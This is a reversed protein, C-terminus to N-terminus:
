SPSRAACAPYRPLSSFPSQRISPVPEGRTAFGDRSSGADVFPQEAVSWGEPLLLQQRSRRVAGKCALCHPCTRCGEKAVVDVSRFGIYQDSVCNM